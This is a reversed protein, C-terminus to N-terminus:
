ASFKNFPAQNAQLMFDRLMPAIEVPTSHMLKEFYDGQLMLDEPKEALSDEWLMDYINRRMYLVAGTTPNVACNNDATLTVNYSSIGAGTIADGYAGNNNSYLTVKLEVLVSVQANEERQQINMNLFKAKQKFVTGAYTRDCVEVEISEATHALLPM